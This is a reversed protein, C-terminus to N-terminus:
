DLWRQVLTVIITLSALSIVTSTVVAASVFRPHARFETALITTFVATPMSAAVIFVQQGLGELGLLLTVGYAIPAAVVLRLILAAVLSPLQDLALGSALQFGLVLLLAPIAAGALLDIPQALTTPLEWGMARLSFAAVIAYLAPVKFAQWLPDLGSMESRSAVYVGLSWSLSAQVIFIIVAIALGEEGFALLTLPLAMNGANPFATSLIFASQMPRSHRLLKSVTLGAVLVLFTLVLAAAAIRLSVAAPPQANMLANFIFAPSFIYLVAQNLPAVPLQRWRQFLAGIAAVLFIPLVVNLFVDLLPNDQGPGPRAPGM